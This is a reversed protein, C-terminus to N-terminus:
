STQLSEFAGSTIMKTVPREYYMSQITPAVRGNKTLADLSYEVRRKIREPSSILASVRDASITLYLNDTKLEWNFVVSKAGHNFIQPAPFANVMLEAAIYGAVNVIHPEVWCEDREDLMYIEGLADGVEQYERILESQSIIPESEFSM